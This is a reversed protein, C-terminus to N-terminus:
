RQSACVEDVAILLSISQVAFCGVGSLDLTATYATPMCLSACDLIDDINTPDIDGTITVVTGLQRCQASMSARYSGTVALQRRRSPPGNAPVATLSPDTVINAQENACLENLQLRM